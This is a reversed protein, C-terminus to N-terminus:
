LSKFNRKYEAQFSMPELLLSTSPILNKPVYIYNESATNLYEAKIPYRCSFAKNLYVTIVNKMWGKGRLRVM